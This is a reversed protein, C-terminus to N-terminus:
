NNNSSGLTYNVDNIHCEIQDDVENWLYNLVEHTKLDYFTINHINLKKRYCMIANSKNRTSILLAETDCCYM